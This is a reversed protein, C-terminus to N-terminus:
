QALDVIYYSVLAGVVFLLVNFSLYAPSYLKSWEVYTNMLHEVQKAFTEISSGEQFDRLAQHMWYKKILPYLNTSVLTSFFRAPILMILQEIAYQFSIAGQTEGLVLLIRKEKRYEKGIFVLIMLFSMSVIIFFIYGAMRIYRLNSQIAKYMQSTNYDTSEAFFYGCGPTLRSNISNLVESVKYPDDLLIIIYNPDEETRRDEIAQIHENEQLLGMIANFDIVTQKESSYVLLAQPPYQFTLVSLYISESHLFFWTIDQLSFILFFIIIKAAFTQKNAKIYSIIRYWVRRIM